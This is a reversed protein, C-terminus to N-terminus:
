RSNRLQSSAVDMATLVSLDYHGNQIKHTKVAEVVAITLELVRKPESIDTDQERIVKQLRTYLEKEM